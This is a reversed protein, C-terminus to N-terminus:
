ILREKCNKSLKQHLSQILHQLGKLGNDTLSDKDTLFIQM